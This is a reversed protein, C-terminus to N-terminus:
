LKVYEGSTGEPCEFYYWTRSALGSPFTGCLERGVYVEVGTMYSVQFTSLLVRIFKVHTEGGAFDARYWSAEGYNTDTTRWSNDTDSWDFVPSDSFPYIMEPVYYSTYPTSM